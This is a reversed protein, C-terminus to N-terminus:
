DAIAWRIYPRSALITSASIESPNSPTDKPLQVRFYVNGKQFSVRYTNGESSASGVCTAYAKKLTARYEAFKKGSSVLKVPLAIALTDAIVSHEGGGEYYRFTNWIGFTKPCNGSQRQVKLQENPPTKPLQPKPTVALTSAATTTLLTSLLGFSLTIKALTKM